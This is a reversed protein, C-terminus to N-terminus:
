SILMVIIVVAWFLTYLGVGWNLVTTRFKPSPEGSETTKALTIKNRHVLLLVLGAIVAILLVYGYVALLIQNYDMLTQSIFSGFFNVVMHLAITYRIDRTKIYIFAFFCGLPFAYIFQNLNGHYLGFIFGSFVVSIFEGYQITRDVLIKRFLYEEVCPACLAIIFLNALPNISGTITELVNTVSGQKLIGIVATLAQGIINFLYLIALSMLLAQIWQGVSMKKKEGIDQAPVKKLLLAIVPFGIIYMSLMTALFTYTYDEAIAPISKGLAGMIVMAISQVVSILITGILYRFGIKSFHKKNQTMTENNM